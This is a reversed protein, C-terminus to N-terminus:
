RSRRAAARPGSRVVNRRRAPHAEGRGRARAGAKVHALSQELAAELDTTAEIAPAEAVAKLPKGSAKQKILNLVRDRHEDRYRDPQFSSEMQGIIAEAMQLEKASHKANPAAPAAVVEDGYVLTTLRLFDDKAHVICLHEQTSMVLRGLAVRGKRALAETFLSYARESGKGQPLVYYTRDFYVPDIAALEFFAEIAITRNRQPDLAKLEDRTLTVSKGKSIEYGKVIHEYSVEKGDKECIKKERIRGGDADHVMHFRVAKERVAIDLTVNISVLGFGLTGTWAARAM